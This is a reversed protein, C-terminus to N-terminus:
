IWYGIIFWLPLSYKLFLIYDSPPPFPLGSWYEQRPLGMSLPAQHAVTWPIGFFRVHSLSQACACAFLCKLNTCASLQSFHCHLYINISMPFQGQIHKLPPFLKFFLLFFICNTTVCMCICTCINIHRSSFAYFYWNHDDTPVLIEGKYVEEKISPRPFSMKGRKVKIKAHTSHCFQVLM